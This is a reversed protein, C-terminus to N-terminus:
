RMAPHLACVFGIALASGYPIHRGRPAALTPMWRSSGLSAALAEQLRRIASPWLGLALGILSGIVFTTLLTYWGSLLGMAMLLKVDGAGLKKLLYGPLTLVAGLGAGLWASTAAEGSWSAGFWSLCGLAALLGGVTLTNPLRRQQWDFWAACSAWACLSLTSFMLDM